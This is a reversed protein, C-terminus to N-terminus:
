SGNLAINLKLHCDKGERGRIGLLQKGREAQGASGPLATLLPEAPLVQQQPRPHEALQLTLGPAKTVDLARHQLARSQWLSLVAGTCGRGTKPDDLM